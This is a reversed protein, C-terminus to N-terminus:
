QLQFNTIGRFIATRAIQLFFTRRLTRSACNICPCSSEHGTRLEDNCQMEPWLVCMMQCVTSFFCTNGYNPIGVHSSTQCLIPVPLKFPQSLRRLSADPTDLHVVREQIRRKPITPPTKMRALLEQKRHKPRRMTSRKASSADFKALITGPLDWAGRWKPTNQVKLYLLTYM